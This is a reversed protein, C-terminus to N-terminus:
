ETLVWKINRKNKVDASSGIQLALLNLWMWYTCLDIDPDAIIQCVCVSLVAFILATVNENLRKKRYSVLIDLLWRLNFFVYLAFGIIGTESLMTYIINSARSKKYGVGYIMSSNFMVLARKNWGLRAMASQGSMKSFVVADLIDYFLYYMMAFGLLGLVLIEVKLKREKSVALFLIGVILFAGYATSSFTLVIQLLLLCIIPINEKRKSKIAFFYYFAGVVFGAYYSPEMYTAMIRNVNDKYYYIYDNSTDNYLLGDILINRPFIGLSIMYQMFGIIIMTITLVRIFNYVYTENIYKGAEFMYCFCFVYLGLQFIYLIVESFVQNIMSSIIISIYLMLLIIRADYWKKKIYIKDVRRLLMRFLFVFSTIIQPGIGITGIVIVNSCQLTASVVTLIVLYEIRNFCVALLMLWILGFVTM